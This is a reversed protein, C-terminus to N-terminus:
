THFGKERAKKTGQWIQQLLADTLVLLAWGWGGGGGGPRGGPILIKQFYVPLHGM